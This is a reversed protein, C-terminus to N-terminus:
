LNKFLDLQQKDIIKQYLRGLLYSQKKHGEIHCDGCFTIGNNIDWLETCALAQEITTINNERLIFSFEKIHHANLEGGNQGCEQCTFNDRTFVATRWQKYKLTKRIQKVLSTLGGKYRHSKEGKLIESQWVAFCKRNCFKGSGRKIVSPNVKFKGGCQLCICKIKGDKWNPNNEKAKHHSQWKGKCEICCFNGDKKVKAPTIQFDNGCQKCICKVKGGNYRLAKEGVLNQSTWEGHCKKCCFKGRGDKIRSLYEYHVKPQGDIGNPCNSNQCTCKVKEIRKM